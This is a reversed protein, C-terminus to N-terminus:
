GGCRDNSGVVEVLPRCMTVSDFKSNTVPVIPRLTARFPLEAFYASSRVWSWVLARREAHDLVAIIREACFAAVLEIDAVGYPHFGASCAPLTVETDRAQLDSANVLDDAPDDAPWPDDLQSLVVHGASCLPESWAHVVPCDGLLTARSNAIFSRVSSEATCDIVLDFMGPACHRAMWDRADAVAGHVTLGPVQQQLQKALASAKATEIDGMGLRHRSVNEPEMRQIDVLQLTGIGARSLTSAIPSGLSGAGLLLVRKQRRQDLASLGHDRALAWNRDVRIASFPEVIPPLCRLIPYAHVQYGYMVREDVLIVALPKRHPSDREDAEHERRGFKSASHPRSWRTPRKDLWSELQFEGDTLHALLENLQSYSKPWNLPAWPMNSPLRVFVANGRVLTGCAWKHRQATEHPDSGSACIVQSYFRGAKAKPQVYGVISGRTWRTFEPLDVYTHIATAWLSEGRATNSASCHQNWYAARENHFQENIWREDDCRALVQTQLKDLARKVAGVPDKYDVPAPALALCVRGTVEVHPIQLFHVRDVYLECCKAPFMPPLVIRIWRIPVHDSRVEFKWALGGVGSATRERKVGHAAADGDLWAAVLAVQSDFLNTPNPM